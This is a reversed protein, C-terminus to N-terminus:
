SCVHTLFLHVSFFLPLIQLKKFWEQCSDRIGSDTIVRVTRKKIRVIYNSHVSNGWFIIEYSLVSHFHLFDTENIRPVYFTKESRIPFCAKKLKPKIDETHQKWSLNSHMTLGLFKTKPRQLKNIKM